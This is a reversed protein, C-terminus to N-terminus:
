RIVVELPQEENVEVDIVMNKDDVYRKDLRIILDEKNAFKKGFRKDFIIMVIRTIVRTFDIGIPGGTIQLFLKDGVSYCHNTMIFDTIKEVLLALMKENTGQETIRWEM